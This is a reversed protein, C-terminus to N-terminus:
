SFRKRRLGTALLALALLGSVEPEPIASAQSQSAFGLLQAAEASVFFVQAAPPAQGGGGFGGFGGFGAGMGGAFSDAASSTWFASGYGNSSLLTSNEQGTGMESGVVSAVALVASEKGGKLHDYLAEGEVSVLGQEQGALLASVAEEPLPNGEADTFVLEGEATGATRVIGGEIGSVEREVFEGGFFLDLRPSVAGEERSPLPTWSATLSWAGNDFDELEHITVETFPFQESGATDFGAERFVHVSERSALRLHELRQRGDPLLDADAGDANYAVLRLSRLRFIESLMERRGWLGTFDQQGAKVGDIWVGLVNQGDFRVELHHFKGPVLFPRHESRADPRLEFDGLLLGPENGQPVTLSLRGVFSEQLGWPESM